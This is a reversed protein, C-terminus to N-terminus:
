RLKRLEVDVEVDATRVGGPDNKLAQDLSESIELVVECAEKDVDFSGSGLLRMDDGDEDDSCGPDLNLEPGAVQVYHAGCYLRGPLFHAAM